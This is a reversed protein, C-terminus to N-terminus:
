QCPNSENVAGNRYRLKLLSPLLYIIKISNKYNVLKIAMERKALANSHRDLNIGFYRWLNKRFSLEAIICSYKPFNECIM